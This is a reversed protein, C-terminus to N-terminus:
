VGHGGFPDRMAALGGKPGSQRARKLLAMSHPGQHRIIVRPDRLMREYIRPREQIFAQRPTDVQNIPM